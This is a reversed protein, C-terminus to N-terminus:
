GIASRIAAEIARRHVPQTTEALRALAEASLEDRAAGVKGRRFFFEESGARKAEEKERLRGFSSRQLAAVIVEDSADHGLFRVARRLTAPGDQALMEYSLLLTDQPAHTSADLAIEVHRCWGEAMHECFALLGDEVMARMSEQLRHFHFYSVLADAPDRFVYLLRHGTIATLNHSKLIRRPVGFRAHAEHEMAHQPIHVDPVLMWVSEPEPEGPRNLVLVDRVLHRLWTNGSRPYSVIFQDNTRLAALRDSPIAMEAVHPDPRDTKRLLRRLWAM